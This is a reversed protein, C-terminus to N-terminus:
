APRQPPWVFFDQFGPLSARTQDLRVFAAYDLLTEFTRTPPNFKTFAEAVAIGQDIAACKNALLSAVRSQLSEKSFSFTLDDQCPLLKTFSQGANTLCLTHSGYARVVRDHPLSATNPSMDLTGLSGRILQISDVYNCDDICTAKKGTFDLHGWNNGRIHIPFDMLWEAMRTCKVARIYDDLQAIFFLRLNTLQEVDFHQQAFYQTVADDIRNGSVSDLHLELEDALECLARRVQPAIGFSWMRRIEAPDRGNKLFLLTGSKKTKLDVDKLAIRDLPVPPVTGIPGAIGPLRKRLEGHETFGYISIFQKGPVRHRDFFYAPSDGFLTIFPIGLDKWVNVMQGNHQVSVDMGMGACSMVFRIKSVDPGQLLPLLPDIKVLSIEVLEIDMEKLIPAFARGIGELAGGRTTGSLFLIKDL